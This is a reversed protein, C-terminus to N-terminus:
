IQNRHGGKMHGCAFHFVQSKTGSRGGLGLMIHSYCVCAPRLVEAIPMLNRLSLIEMKLCGIHGCNSTNKLTVLGSSRGRGGPVRTAERTCVASPRRPM